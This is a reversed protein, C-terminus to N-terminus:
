GKLIITWKIDNLLRYNDMNIWFHNFKIFYPISLM